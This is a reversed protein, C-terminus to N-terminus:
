KEGGPELIKCKEVEPESEEHFVTYMIYLWGHMDLTEFRALIRTAYRNQTEDKWSKGVKKRREYVTATIKISGNSFPNTLPIYTCTKHPARGPDVKVSCLHFILTEVHLNSSILFM